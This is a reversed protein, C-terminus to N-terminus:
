LNILEKIYEVMFLPINILGADENLNRMSFRIRTRPKYKENYIKLSTDAPRLNKVGM